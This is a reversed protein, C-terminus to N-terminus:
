ICVVKFYFSNKFTALDMSDEVITNNRRKTVAIHFQYTIWSIWKTDSNVSLLFFLFNKYINLLSLFQECYM